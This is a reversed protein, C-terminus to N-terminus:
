VHHDGRRLGNRANAAEGSPCCGRQGSRTPTKASKSTHRKAVFTRASSQDTQAAFSLSSGTTAKGGRCGESTAAEQASIGGSKAATGTDHSRYVRPAKEIAEQPLPELQRVTCRCFLHTTLITRTNNLCRPARMYKGLTAAVGPHEPIISDPDNALTAALLANWTTPKWVCGDTEDCIRKCTKQWQSSPMPQLCLLDTPAELCEEFTGAGDVAELTCYEIQQPRGPPHALVYTCGLPLNTRDAQQSATFVYTEKEGHTTCVVLRQKTKGKKLKMGEFRSIPVNPTMEDAGDDGAFDSDDGDTSAESNLYEDLPSESSKDLGYM